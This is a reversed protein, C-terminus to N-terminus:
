STTYDGISFRLELRNFYEELLHRTKAPVHYKELTLQVLKHPMSGYANALDLWIVALEGKGERAERIIQTLVSTHEICGSVGPVGGKQVSIDVYNNDLMYRTMHNAMVSLM